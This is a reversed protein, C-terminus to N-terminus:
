HFGTKKYENFQYMFKKTKCLDMYYRYRIHVYNYNRILNYM